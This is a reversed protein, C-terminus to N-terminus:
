FLCRPESTVSIHLAPMFPLLQTAQWAELIACCGALVKIHQHPAAETGPAVGQHVCSVSLAVLAVEEWSSLQVSVLLVSSNSHTLMRDFHLHVHESTFKGVTFVLLALSFLQITSGRCRRSDTM